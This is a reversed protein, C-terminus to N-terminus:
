SSSSLHSGADSQLSGKLYIGGAWVAARRCLPLPVTKQFETELAWSSGRVLCFTLASGSPVAPGPEPAGKDPNEPLGTVLHPLHVTGLDVPLSPQPCHPSSSQLSWSPLTNAALCHFPQATPPHVVTACSPAHLSPVAWQAPARGAEMLAVWGRLISTLSRPRDLLTLIRSRWCLLFSLGPSPLAVATAPFPGSSMAPPLPTAPRLAPGGGSFLGM